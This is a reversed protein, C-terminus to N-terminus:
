RRHLGYNPHRKEHKIITVRVRDHLVRFLILYPFRRLRARRLNPHGLYPSFREPHEGIEALQALLQQWFRDALADGGGRRYYRLVEGVDRQTAPHYSLTM